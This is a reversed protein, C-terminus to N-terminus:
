SNTLSDPGPESLNIRCGNIDANKPMFSPIVSAFNPLSGNKIDSKKASLLFDLIFSATLLTPFTKM